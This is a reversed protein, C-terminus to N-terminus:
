KTGLVGLPCAVMVYGSSGLETGWAWNGQLNVFAGLESSLLSRSGLGDPVQFSMRPCFQPETHYAKGCIGELYIFTM